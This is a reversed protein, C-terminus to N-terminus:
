RKSTGSSGDEVRRKAWEAVGTTMLEAIAADHDAAADEKGQAWQAQALVSHALVMETARQLLTAYELAESARAIATDFRKRDVDLQAARNLTYALRHKADVVRLDQLATDMADSSDDTVYACLGALAWAFPGESGDRLKDGIEILIKCRESAAEYSGREFAIMMLYENAQFESIRDGEKKCLTRAEKLLEEAEDLKGEYYKLMGMGASIAHHNVQENAALAKAEMLMADAQPLDRELMILCKATHSIGVIQDEAQGGRVVRASQLSQERADSWQDHAWRVTAVMHYGLRAHALEGHDVAQEALRAYERASAEWDDLPAAAMMIDHLDISVCVRQADALSEVLQMGKRTLNMAEENAFFRLCLRGASVMARAALGADGSQTAHHALDAAHSLDLATNKELMDAVRRHMVQRRLPSIENYVGRAVLNHSFRLGTETATLMAQQEALELVGGVRDASQGTLEALVDLDIHPSLVAAWRLVEASDVDFRALRERVLDNMSGGSGGEQEARALEIALLPNGGSELSLRRSDAGPAHQEILQQTRATSLPGLVIEVFLDDQRLGRLSQQLPVNDRMEINRGGVLALVPRHKNMRMVYHLAASSSEDCWQVDDFILVVPGERAEDAILSSLGEFLRDRNEAAKEGFIKAAADPVRKRLADTWMAFPRLAESEYAHANLLFVQLNQAHALATALLRSKGVGPDGRILICKATQREKVEAFLGVLRALEEDRGIIDIAVRSKKATQGRSSSVAIEAGQQQAQGPRGRWAVLLAGSSEVGVEELMRMGLRYQQEAEDTHRLQVLLGILESRAQEDYPSVAVLRRAYPLAEQPSGAHRKSIERLLDVQARLVHEREAVCWAHFDHFNSMELGELFNGKYREAAQELDDLSADGLGGSTLKLLEAADIEVGDTNFEVNTRDAVIRKHEEDDVVRRLKSLSWRLAGRPDDPIEWLLECLYDRRFHRQNLSLYALLARTKRSPPLGVPQGDRLVEFDGLYKLELKSMAYSYFRTSRFVVTM